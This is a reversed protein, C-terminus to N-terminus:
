LRLTFHMNVRGWEQSTQGASLSCQLTNKHLIHKTVPMFLAAKWKWTLTFFFYYTTAKDCHPTTHNIWPCM